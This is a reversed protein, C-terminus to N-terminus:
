SKPNSAASASREIVLNAAATLVAARAPEMALMFGDRTDIGLSAGGGTSIFTMKDAVGASKVAKASDGGGIISTCATNAALAEAIACGIGSGAGTVLARKGSLDFSPPRPLDTM